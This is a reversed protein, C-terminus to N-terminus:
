IFHFREKKFCISKEENPAQSHSYVFNKKIILDFTKQVRKLLNAATGFRPLSYRPGVGRNLAQAFCSRLFTATTALRQSCQTDSKVPRPISGWVKRMSLSMKLM